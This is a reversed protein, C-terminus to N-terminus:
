STSARAPLLTVYLMSRANVTGLRLGRVGPVPNLSVDGALLLLLSFDFDVEFDFRQQLLPFSISSIGFIAFPCMIYRTRQQLSVGLGQRSPQHLDWSGAMGTVIILLFPCALASAM